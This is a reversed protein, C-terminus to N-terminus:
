VTHKQLWTLFDADSLKGAALELIIDELEKSTMEIEISNLDLMTLLVLAGIRKNGDIFPHNMVLGSCLRAAKSLITPYFDIGSFGQFPAAIASELLGEDRIGSSGGYRNILQQHMLLIQEKTLRIM